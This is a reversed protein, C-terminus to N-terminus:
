ANDLHAYEEAYNERMWRRARYLVAQLVELTVGMKEAVEKQPKELVYTITVADYWRPSKAYLAEFIEEKLRMYQREKIKRLFIDEPNEAIEATDAEESGIFEDVLYERELDRNRNLAMYKTTLILWGRAAELNIHGMNMYLKLFVSQAIEEAEHHNGSYKVAAKYVVEANSRYIEDFDTNGTLEMEVQGDKTETEM